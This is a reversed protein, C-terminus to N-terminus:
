MSHLVAGSVVHKDVFSRIDQLLAQPEELAAFHGGSAFENWQAVNMRAEAWARPVQVHHPLFPKPRWLQCRKGQAGRVGLADVSPHASAQIIEHPFVAVAVPAKIYSRTLSAAQDAPDKSELYLRMSSTICRTFHYISVNTLLDAPAYRQFLTHGSLDSWGHFKEVIWALLGVPSDTLAYGLTQPKTSHVASYGSGSSKFEQLRLLGRTESPTLFFSPVLSPLYYCLAANAVQLLQLPSTLTPPAYCMNIHIGVCNEPHNRALAQCIISGWDGGQAVYRPYGLSLMLANMTKAMEVIGFGPQKPASSFGYGPLSPVVVNFLPERQRFSAESRTNAPTTWDTLEPESSNAGRPEGSEAAAAPSQAHTVNRGTTLPHILRHFEYFSGPWGHLLLIPTATPAELVAREHVFHMNIGNVPLTYQKFTNLYKEIKRWEFQNKWYDLLKQLTAADMGQQWGTGELEDPLRADQLRQKLDELEKNPVNVIFPIPKADM